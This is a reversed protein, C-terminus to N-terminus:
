VIKPKLFMKIYTDEVIDKPSFGIEGAAEMIEAGTTNPSGIIETFEGFGEVTDRHMILGRSALIERQKKIVGAEDFIEFFEEIQEEQIPIQIKARPASVSDQACRKFSFYNNDGSIRIRFYGEDQFIEEGKQQLYIDQEFFAGSQVHWGANRLVKHSKVGRFKIEPGVISACEKVAEPSRVLVEDESISFRQEGKELIFSVLTDRTDEISTHTTDFVLLPIDPFEAKLFGCVCEVSERMLALSDPNMMSGYKINDKKGYERELATDVDTVLCLIADLMSIWQKQLIFSKVFDYEEQTVSGLRRKFEFWCLEDLLCRNFIIFHFDRSVSSKLFKDFSYVFHQMQYVYSHDRPVQRIREAEASEQHVLVQFKSRRFWRDLEVLQRDKGAKPFGFMEIMLPRIPMESKRRPTDLKRLIAQAKGDHLNIKM